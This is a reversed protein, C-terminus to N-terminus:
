RGPPGGMQIGRQTARAAMLERYQGMQVRTEAPVSSLFRNKWQKAEPSDRNIPPGGPGGPRPGADAGASSGSPPTAAGGTAPTGGAAAGPKDASKPPAFESRMSMMFDIDKDLAATQEAPPMALVEKARSAMMQMIMKGGEEMAVKRLGEPLAEMQKRAAKIKEIKEKNDLGDTKVIKMTEANAARVEQLRSDPDFVGCCYAIGVGGLGLVLLASISWIVIKKAASKKPPQPKTPRAFTVLPM